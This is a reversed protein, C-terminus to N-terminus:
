GPSLNTDPGLHTRGKGWSLLSLSWCVVTCPWHIYILSSILLHIFSMKCLMLGKLCDLLSLFCIDLLHATFISWVLYKLINQREYEDCVSVTSAQSHYAFQRTILLVQHRHLSCHFNCSGDGHGQWDPRSLSSLWHILHALLKCEWRDCLLVFAGLTVYTCAMSETAHVPVLHHETSPLIFVCSKKSKFCLTHKTLAHKHATNQLYEIYVWSSKWKGDPSCVKM